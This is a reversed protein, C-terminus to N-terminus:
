DSSIYIVVFTVLKSINSLINIENANYCHFYSANLCLIMDNLDYSQCKGRKQKESVFMDPKFTIMNTITVPVSMNYKEIKLRSKTDHTNM